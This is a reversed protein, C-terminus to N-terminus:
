PNRRADIWICFAVFAVVSVLYIAITASLHRAIFNWQDKRLCFILPTQVAIVILPSAPTIKM